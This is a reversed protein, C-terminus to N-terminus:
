SDSIPRLSVLKRVKRDDTGLDWNLGSKVFEYRAKGKLKAKIADDWLKRALRVEKKQDLRNQTSKPGQKKAGHIKHLRTVAPWKIDRKYDFSWFGPIMMMTGYPTLNISLKLLLPRNGQMGYLHWRQCFADFIERFRDHASKWRFTWNERFSRESVMRRRIVGKHDAFEETKFRRTIEHWQAIFRPDDSLEREMADFKHQAHISSEYRGTAVEHEHEAVVTQTRVDPVPPLMELMLLIDPTFPRDKEVYGLFMELLADVDIPWLTLPVFLWAYLNGM